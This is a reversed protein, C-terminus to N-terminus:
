QSLVQKWLKSIREFDYTKEVYNAANKGLKVFDVKNSDIKLYRSVKIINSLYIAGATPEPLTETVGPARIGIVGTKLRAAEIITLGFSEFRTTSVLCSSNSFIMSLEGETLDNVIECWGAKAFCNFVWRWFLDFKSRSYVIRLKTNKRNLFVLIALRDVGKRFTFTGVWVPNRKVPTESLDFAGGLPNSHPIIAVRAANEIKLKEIITNSNAIEIDSYNLTDRQILSYIFGWPTKRSYPTHLTSIYIQNGDKPFRFIATQMGVIPAVVFTGLNMSDKAEALWFSVPHPIGVKLFSKVRNNSSPVRKIVLLPSVNTCSLTEGEAVLCVKLGISNMSQIMQDYAKSVGLRPASIQYKSFVVVDFLKSNGDLVNGNSQADEM